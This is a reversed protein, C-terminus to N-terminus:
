DKAKLLAQYSALGRLPELFVQRHIGDGFYFGQEFAKGLLTM